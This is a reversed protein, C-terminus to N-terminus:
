DFSALKFVCRYVRERERERVREQINHKHKAVGQLAGPSTTSLKEPVDHVDIIPSKNFSINSPM